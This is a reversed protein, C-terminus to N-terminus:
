EGEKPDQPEFMAKRNALRWLRHKVDNETKDMARAITRVRVGKAREGVLYKDQEDTWAMFV